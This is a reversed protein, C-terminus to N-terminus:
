SGAARLPSLGRHLRVNDTNSGIAPMPECSVTQKDAVHRHCDVIGVIGAQAKLTRARIDSAIM